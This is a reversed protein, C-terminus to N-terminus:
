VTLECVNHGKCDDKLDDKKIPIMQFDYDKYSKSGVRLEITHNSHRLNDIKIAIDRFQDMVVPLRYIHIGNGPLKHRFLKSYPIDMITDSDYIIFSFDTGSNVVLIHMSNRNAPLEDEPITLQCRTTEYEYDDVTPFETSNINIYIRVKGNCHISIDKTVKPISYTYMIHPRDTHLTVLKGHPVIYSEDKSNAMITFLKDSNGM